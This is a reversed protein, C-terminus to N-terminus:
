LIEVYGETGNVSIGQGVKFLKSLVGEGTTMELLLYEGEDFCFGEVAAGEANDGGGTGNEVILTNPIM